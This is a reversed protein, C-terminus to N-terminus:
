HPRTDPSTVRIEVMLLEGLNHLADEWGIGVTPPVAVQATMTFLPAGSIPAWTVGTEMFEIHIGRESLYRAVEHIIGEHDAGRVEIQFPLWGPYIGGSVTRTLSVTVKYGQTVLSELDRQLAEQNEAPFSVLMLMAFEGGLRAMRSNEVNGGHPLLIGTVFEVMGIRDTGTLTLVINARM